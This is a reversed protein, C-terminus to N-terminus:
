GASDRCIAGASFALWLLAPICVAVWAARKRSFAALVFAVPLSLSCRRFVTQRRWPGCGTGGFHRAALWGLLVAAYACVLLLALTSALALAPNQSSTQGQSTKRNSM